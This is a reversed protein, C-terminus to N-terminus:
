SNRVFNINLINSIRVIDMYSDLSDLSHIKFLSKKSLLKRQSVLQRPVSFITSECSSTRLILISCFIKKFDVRM